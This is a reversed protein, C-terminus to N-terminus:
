PEDTLSSMLMLFFPALVCIVLFVMLTNAFIQFGRDKQVM